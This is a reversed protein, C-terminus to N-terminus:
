VQNAFGDRVTELVRRVDAFTTTPADNFATVQGHGIVRHIAGWARIVEGYPHGLRRAAALSAGVLCYAVRGNPRRIMVVGKCWDEPTKLVELMGECIALEPSTVPTVFGATDFPM